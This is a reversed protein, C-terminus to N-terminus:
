CVEVAKGQMDRVPPPPSDVPKADAVATDISGQLVRIFTQPNIKGRGNPDLRRMLASFRDRTLFLRMENLGARLEHPEVGDGDKDLEMFVEEIDHITYGRSVLM